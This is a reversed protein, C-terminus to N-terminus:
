HFFELPGVSIYKASTGYIYINNDSLNLIPVKFERKVKRVIKEGRSSRRVFYCVAFPQQVDIEPLLGEWIEKSNLFVPDVVYEIRKKVLKQLEYLSGKERVSIYSLDDLLEKFKDRYVDDLKYDGMSAAYIMKTKNKPVFDLFYPTKLGGLCNINWIQDSGAIYWDFKEESEKLTETSTYLSTYDFFKKKFEEFNKETQKIDKSKFVKYIMLLIRKTDNVIRKKLEKEKINKNFERYRIFCVDHGLSELYIKMSFAQLMSGYNTNFDSFTIIGIKKM